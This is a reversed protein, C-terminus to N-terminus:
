TSGKYHVLKYVTLVSVNWKGVIEARGFGAIEWLSSGLPQCNDIECIVLLQSTVSTRKPDIQDNEITVPKNGRIEFFYRYAHDSNQGTILAFNFPKGVAKALVFKAANETQGLQRNPEYIFPRADWNTKVLVTLFVASLFLLLKNKEWLASIGVGTLIFSVPFIIGLYYDYIAKKYLGFLLLPVILWLLFLQWKKKETKEQYHWVGFTTVLMALYAFMQNNQTVLRYFMRNLLDKTTSLFGLLSFGTDGSAFVFRVLMQSNPFGHRIEFFVFPSYALLFGFVLQLLHIRKLEKRRLFIEILVYIILFSFLYHLQLGIGLIVGVGFLSNNLQKIRLRYIFLILLTAFFPVVNPNWSSHSYNIVVPSVAYLLAAILGVKKNFLSKGLLYILFITAVGLVGVMVAPGVPNLNFLWLFPLMFYYYIPGLFFGGVSATPGLLTFKHDVLMRKVVLVDRGEDGLFTM